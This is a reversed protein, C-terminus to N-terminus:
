TNPINVRQWIIHSASIERGNRLDSKWKTSPKRRQPYVNKNSDWKSTNTKTAHTKVIRDLFSCSLGTDVVKKRRHKRRPTKCNWTKFKLRQDMELENKHITYALTRKWEQAHTPKGVEIQQPSWGKGAAYVQNGPWIRSSWQHLKKDELHKSTLLPFRACYMYNGWLNYTQAPHKLLKLTWPFKLFICEPQAKRLGSPFLLFSKRNHVFVHNEHINKNFHCPVWLM